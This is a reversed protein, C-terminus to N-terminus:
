LVAIPCTRGIIPPLQDNSPLTTFRPGCIALCNAVQNSLFIDFRVFSQLKPSSSEPVLEWEAVPRDARLFVDLVGNLIYEVSAAMLQKAIRITVKDHLPLIAKPIKSTTLIERCSRATSTQECSFRFSHRCHGLIKSPLDHLCHEDLM